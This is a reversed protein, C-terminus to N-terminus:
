LALARAHPAVPAPLATSGMLHADVAAACARGEAIAWVILSQGRACDGATFVGPVTTEWREDHALNGRSDRAVGAERLGQNDEPGTFGMALLVLQAPLVQETGPAPVRRGDEIVTRAVRIGAVAGDQDVEFGTTSALYSRDGGEEHSGSVELLVPHLPWPHREDRESPPQYGIALTTVSRAGQRLATGLCDAGTDGGGIVIVDKGEATIQGPVEDGEVRRNAQTLYEMASHIGAAERGPVPLDRPAQAGTALVVADFRSRLEALSIAGEGEGGVAAGTRFRTGEARMQELRRALHRKELKFEPIGYRLLGGIRDDRELVVVSHGARTLQQAAALGAPGSGVVAVTRGSQRPAELPTVWGEEFARDIISVEINKITVPPQNIGLVCSSECPAPCARGTFEPFNNTAHLREAAERWDERYVLENWEPILNGLPCGQHCFPIGCDMCRGAQRPVVGQQGHERIEYVERWDMLRLPVPRRAPLERDRVKLFGRPDAM